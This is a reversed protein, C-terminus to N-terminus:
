SALNERLLIDIFLAALRPLFFTRSRVSGGSGGRPRPAASRGAALLGPGRAARLWPAARHPGAGGPAGGAGHCPRQGAGSRALLRTLSRGARPAGRARPSRARPQPGPAPRPPPLRRAALPRRALPLPPASGPAPETAPRGGPSGSRWGGEEPAAM